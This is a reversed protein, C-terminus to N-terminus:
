SLTDRLAQPFFETSTTSLPSEVNCSLPRLQEVTAIVRKAMLAHLLESGQWVKGLTKM